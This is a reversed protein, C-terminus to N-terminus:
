IAVCLVYVIGVAGSATAVKLADGKQLEHYADDIEGFRVVDTDGASSVDVADTIDDSGKQVTFTDSSAGAGTMVVWADVVRFAYPASAVLTYAATGAVTATSLVFSPAGLETGLPGLQRGNIGAAM